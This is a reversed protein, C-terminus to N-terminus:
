TQLVGVKFMPVDPNLAAAELAITIADRTEMPDIIRDIWLRAAGYRPDAQEDYTQKVSEHLQKKEEDSLQKGSRELQRIKIEVLTGAAADGGMVAYKATPWAFVFRPDYAKGCMAYHGAGFSGGLIVTIKPVVSNSVANVMKAGAKIIGSWEADRGVMFGNVDHLFVLPVLNQNCDMIFRAAKEASETYIVGGFEMRKHGQHDTSQAHMKQNAVIGVAFGGIRGYGCVLTKGYEPKYEDFKSADAIRAIVEKVDYPRSPSSDYIGYIEEAALAPPVPKKRDWPSQRRYGWKEIISRIRALCSEDNPEHFDVTGSIASHMAAGGLEEASTKQGIAAQVLAPGALFLGSGDTMLVHDCMVPLYGGGAVCMGMIAAIQPIGLASMVANNRFVRGFDDTDPFVDEQLPLFVGASDVLYITPIRNEIAINQARIVKKATMPFFSGAKVTADNAVVMVLRTEIRALGTVVGAGPAGGWEEYMRHAAYIGLEFFTGPDVLMQIRERATSRGKGHQSEIAKAGGGERIQEEENRVGSVLDAMFRMNAEFRASTPDIKTTLISSSNEAM